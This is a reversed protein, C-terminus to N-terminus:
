WLESIHRCEIASATWSKEATERDKDSYYYFIIRNIKTNNRILNWIHDDNNPSIGAMSITGSIDMFEKTPYEDSEINNFIEMIREKETGSFGMIANSYMHKNSEDVPYDLGLVKSRYVELKSGIVFQFNLRDFQGHLHKVEKGSIKELNWDYNVTFINDYRSLIQKLKQFRRDPLNQYLEQIKGEDYVADLFIYMLGFSGDRIMSKPDSYTHQFLRLLLFYDEMGITDDVSYNAKVRDLNSREDDSTCLYDYKGSLTDRFIQNELGEIIVKLDDATVGGAIEKSYDKALVNRHVRDIISANSFESGGIEQNFGNGILISEM